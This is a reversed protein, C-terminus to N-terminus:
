HNNVAENSGTKKERWAEPDIVLGILYGLSATGAVCIVAALLIGSLMGVAVIIRPFIGPAVPAGFIAGSINIGIVGGIFSGYLLGFLAFLALGIGAGIYSLNQSVTRKMM